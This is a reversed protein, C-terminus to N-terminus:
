RGKGGVAALECWWWVERDRRSRRGSMVAQSATAHTGAHAPLETKGKVAERDGANQSNQIEAHESEETKFFSLTSLFSHSNPFTIPPHFKKTTHVVVHRSMSGSQCQLLLLPPVEGLERVGICFLPLFSFAPPSLSFFYANLM